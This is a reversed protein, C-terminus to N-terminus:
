RIGIDTGDSAAGKGPSGAALHFGGYTTPNTGGTYIPTGTINGLGSCSCNLNYSATFTASGESGIGGNQFLNDRVILNSTPSGGNSVGAFVNANRIVNHSVTCGSCGEVDVAYAYMGTQDFVNNSVTYGDDGDPSMIGGSGDGNNHFWNGTVLTNTAGYFQIPDVHAGNISGCSGQQLHDFENGPGITVATVSGVLGVGDSCGGWGGNLGTGGFHSDSVTFGSATINNDQGRFALRAEYTGNQINDFRDHEFSVDANAVVGTGCSSSTCALSSGTFSIYRLHTHTAGYVSAGTSTLNQFVLHSTGTLNLGGISVSAGPAAQITVDASKVASTSLTPYPSGAASLCIVAGAAANAIATQLGSSITTTCALPTYCSAGAGYCAFSSGGGSSCATTTVALTATGSVNGAADVAAVGLTYSTGCSLGSFVYSTSSSTGVQSTGLYLRYGTV